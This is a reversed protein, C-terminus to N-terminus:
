PNMPAIAGICRCPLSTDPRCTRLRSGGGSALGLKTGPDPDAAVAEHSAQVLRMVLMGISSATAKRPPGARLRLRDGRCRTGRGASWRRGPRRGRLPSPRPDPGAARRWVRVRLRAGLPAFQELSRGLEGPADGSVGGADRVVALAVPRPIMEVDKTSDAAWSTILLRMTLFCCTRHVCLPAWRSRWIRM